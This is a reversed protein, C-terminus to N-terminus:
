QMDELFNRSFPEMSTLFSRAHLCSAAPFPRQQRPSLVPFYTVPPAKPPAERGQSRHHRDAAVRGVHEAHQRDALAVVIDLPRRCLDRLIALPTCRSDRGHSEPRYLVDVDIWLSQLFSFTEVATHRRRLDDLFLSLTRVNGRVSFSRCAVTRTRNSESVREPLPFDGLM